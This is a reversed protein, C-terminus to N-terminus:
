AAAERRTPRLLLELGSLLLAGFSALVPKTRLTELVTAAASTCYGVSDCTRWSLMSYTTLYGLAILAYLLTAAKKGRVFLYVFASLSPLVCYLVSVTTDFRFDVRTASYLGHLTVFASCVGLALRLVIGSMGLRNM